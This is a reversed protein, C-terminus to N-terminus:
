PLTGRCTKALLSPRVTLMTECRRSFSPNVRRVLRSEPPNELFCCGLFHNPLLRERRLNSDLTRGSSEGYVIKNKWASLNSHSRPSTISILSPGSFSLISKPKLSTCPTMARVTVPPNKAMPPYARVFAPLMVSTRETRCIIAAGAEKIM